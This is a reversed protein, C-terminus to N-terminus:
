EPESVRRLMADVSSWLSEWQKREVEPLRALADKARVGALDPDTQWHQLWQRVQANTQVNGKDLRKDWWILDQRLWDLAQRRWGARERDDLKDADKGQGCAALAAARAAYYRTGEPVAQALKHELGFAEFYLRAAAGHLGQAEYTRLRAALLALWEDNDQPQYKGELYAQLNPLIMGEAERRLVHCIWEYTHDTQHAGWDYYLGAAALTKWAEMVQGSRYLAMALVLRPAPGPVRSADGRMLSVAQDFRGQRYEALGQAFLFWPYAWTHISPDAAAARRTLAVAQRLEDGTAPLLLCARGTREAFYPNVAASFRALLAHRARLYEDERGLFLCLEAYGFWANHDLPNAELATQWAVRVEELRGQWILNARYARQADAIKPDLALAREYQSIRRLVVGVEDWLASCDEQEDAPLAELANRERLGALDPEVRWYTLMRKVLDSDERSDSDLTRAWLALDAQL